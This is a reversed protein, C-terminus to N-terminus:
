KAMGKEKGVQLDGIVKPTTELLAFISTKLNRNILIILSLWKVPAMRSNSLASYPDCDSQNQLVPKSPKKKVNNEGAM